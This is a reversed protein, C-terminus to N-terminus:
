IGGLGGHVVGSAGVRSVSEGVGDGVKSGSTGRVGGVGGVGGAGGIEPVVKIFILCFNKVKKL